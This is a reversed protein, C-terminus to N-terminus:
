PVWHVSCGMSPVGDDPIDMEVWHYIGGAMCEPRIALLGRGVIQGISPVPQGPGLNREQVLSYAARALADRNARCQAARASKVSTFYEPVSVIMLIWLLTVVVMLEVLTYGRERHKPGAKL